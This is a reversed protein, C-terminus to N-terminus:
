SSEEGTMVEVLISWGGWGGEESVAGNVEAIGAGSNDHGAERKVNDGGESEAEWGGGNCSPYGTPGGGLPGANEVGSAEGCGGVVVLEKSTANVDVSGAEAVGELGSDQAKTTRWPRM